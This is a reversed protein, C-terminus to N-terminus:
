VTFIPLAICCITNLTKPGGSFRKTPQHKKKNKAAHASMNAYGKSNSVNINFSLSIKSILESVFSFFQGSITVCLFLSPLARLVTWLGTM